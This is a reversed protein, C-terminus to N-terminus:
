KASNQKAKKFEVAAEKTKACGSIAPPLQLKAILKDPSPMAIEVSAIRGKAEMSLLNRQLMWPGYSDVSSKKRNNVKLRIESKSIELELFGTKSKKVKVGCRLVQSHWLGLLADAPISGDPVSDILKEPRPTPAVLAAQSGAQTGTANPATTAAINPAANMSSSACGLFIMLNLISLVVVGFKLKMELKKM